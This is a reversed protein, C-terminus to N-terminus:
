PLMFAPAYAIFSTFIIPNGVADKANRVTNCKAMTM